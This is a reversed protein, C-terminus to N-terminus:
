EVIPKPIGIARLLCEFCISLELKQDPGFLDYYVGFQEKLFGDSHSMLEKCLWEMGVTMGRLETQTVPDRMNKGCSACLDQVVNPRKPM